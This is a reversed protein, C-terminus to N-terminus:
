EAPPVETPAFDLEIKAGDPDHLFIQWIGTDIQQSLVFPIGFSRLRKQFGGLDTASFAMHDLVGSTSAATKRAVLHVVAADECYLWAGDFALAPRPGVSLGLVEAYFHVSSQLNATLVTFHNMGTLKM